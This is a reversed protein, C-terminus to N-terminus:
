SRAEALKAGSTAAADEMRAREPGSYAITKLGTRLAGLATGPCDGCDLIMEGLTDPFEARLAREIAAFWEAGGSLAGDELSELSLRTGAAKAAALKRRGDELGNIRAREM